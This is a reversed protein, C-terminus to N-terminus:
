HPAAAAQCVPWDCSAELVGWSADLLMGLLAELPLFRGMGKLFVYMKLVYPQQSKLPGLLGGLGGWLPGLPGWSAEVVARFAELLNGPPGSHARSM